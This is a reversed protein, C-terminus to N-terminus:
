RAASDASNRIISGAGCAGIEASGRLMVGSIISIIRRWRPSPPAAVASPCSSCACLTRAFAPAPASRRRPRASLRVIDQDDRAAEATPERARQRPRTQSRDALGRARAASRACAPAARERRKECAASSCLLISSMAVLASGPSSRSQNETRADCSPPQGRRSGYRRTAQRQAVRARASRAPTRGSSSRRRSRECVARWLILSYARKYAESWLPSRAGNDDRRVTNKMFALCAREMVCSPSSLEVLM